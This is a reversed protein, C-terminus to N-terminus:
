KTIVMAGEARVEEILEAGTVQEQPEKVIADGFVEHKVLNKEKDTYRDRYVLLKYRKKINPHTLSTDIDKQNQNLVHGDKLPFEWFIQSAMGSGFEDSLGKASFHNYVTIINIPRNEQSNTNSNLQETIRGQVGINKNLTDINLGVEVIYDANEFDGDKFTYVGKENSNTIEFRQLSKQNSPRNVELKVKIPKKLENILENIFDKKLRSQNEWGYVPKIFIKLRNGAKIASPIKSHIKIDRTNSLSAENTAQISILNEGESLNLYKGSIRTEPKGKGILDYEEEIGGSKKVKAKISTINSQYDSVKVQLWINEQYVEYSSADKLNELSGQLEITPPSTDSSKTSQQCFFNNEMGVDACAFLASERGSSAVSLPVNLSAENGLRDRTVINLSDTDSFIMNKEFYVDVGKPITVSKKNILLESVEAEDHLYISVAFEKEKDSTNRNVELNELSIEPGEWDAHIIVSQKTPKGMLNKAEVEIVHRGYSLPLNEKFLYEKEVGLFVVAGDITISKIYQEDKAKGSLSVSNKRTWFEYSGSLDNETRLIDKGEFDDLILEPKTEKELGTYIRKLYFEAKATPTQSLSLELQKEAETLKNQYFYVIGLERHPFYDIFHMGGTNMDWRDMKKTKLAKELSREADNWCGGEIYSLAQRYHSYWEGGFPSIDGYTKGDKTCIPGKEHSCGFLSIMLFSALFLRVINKMWEPKLVKMM